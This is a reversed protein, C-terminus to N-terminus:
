ANRAFRVTATNLGPVDGLADMLAVAATSVADRYVWPRSSWVAMDVDFKGGSILRVL